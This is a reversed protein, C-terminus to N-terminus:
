ETEEKQDLYCLINVIQSMIGLAEQKCMEVPKGNIYIVFPVGKIQKKLREEGPRSPLLADKKNDTM